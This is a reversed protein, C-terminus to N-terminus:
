SGSRVRAVRVRSGDSIDTWALIVDEGVSAMRPFGADRAASTKAVLLPESRVGDDRIMRLRIEAEEQEGIREIWAVRAQGRASLSLSVRGVPNGDDVRIPEGFSAGGDTSFALNVREEDNAGTFWAVAVTDGVAAVAPGNVPCGEIRWNDAHVIEPQTWAGDVNRVISTDRIEEGSRDRYVVVPGAATWAASTQCCDCIRTDILQTAAPVGEASITTFGLQMEPNEVAEVTNRGDLWFAQLNGAPSEFLSVFGHEGQLGDDHLIRSESWTKGEDVSQAIRVDYAYPGDGSKQLWHAILRGSRTPLLSPFDAWNVFLDDRTLVTVPPSWEVDLDGLTSYRLSHTERPGKELWSLYVEGTPSVALNPEASGAPAPAKLLEVLPLPAAREACGALLFVALSVVDFRRFVSAIPM